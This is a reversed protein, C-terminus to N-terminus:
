ASKTKTRAVHKVNQYSFIDSVDKKFYFSIAMAVDLSPTKGKVINNITQRSVGIESALESKSIGKSVLLFELTNKM